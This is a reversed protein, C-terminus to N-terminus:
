RLRLSLSRNRNIAFLLFHQNMLVFAPIASSYVM